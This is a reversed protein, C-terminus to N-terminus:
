LDSKIQYLIEADSQNNVHFMVSDSFYSQKNLHLQTHIIWVMLLSTLRILLESLFLKSEDAFTLNQDLQISIRFLVCTCYLQILINKISITTTWFIGLTGYGFLGEVKDSFLWNAKWDIFVALFISKFHTERLNVGFTSNTQLFSGVVIMTLPSSSCHDLHFTVFRSSDGIWLLLINLRSLAVVWGYSFYGNSEKLFITWVADDHHGRFCSTLLQSHASKESIKVTVLKKWFKM